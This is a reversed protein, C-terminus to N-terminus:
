DRLMGFHRFADMIAQEKEPPCILEKSKGEGIYYNEREKIGCKDKTQAIYLSSVKLGFKELVYAKIDGYTAYGGVNKKLDETNISFRIHDDAKERSLLVVTEVHGTFPFMDVGQIKRVTYGNRVLFALDRALTEPNCSVYVIRRPALTLLSSLFERSCGARPPDTVVLDAREGQQAMQTMFKGADACYFRANDISNIRANEKANSLAESNLEVGIVEKCRKALCLSITGAGCYADIVRESGTLCAFDLVTKYLIETQEHNVQYFSRPGIRFHLSCLTDTIYGSGYLVRSKETIFLPTETDNVNHILCTIEPHASILERTLERSHPLEPVATVLVVMIQSGNDATRVTVHRLVGTGRRLDYAKIKLRACIKQLSKVIKQSRIDELMCHDVSVVARRASQYIGTLLRGDRHAFASQLKNRYNVPNKAGIIPMIRCFRGLLSVLKGQKFRLQEEYTMNQLQCGSCKKAYPCKTNENM